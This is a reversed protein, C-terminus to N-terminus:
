NLMRDFIKDWNYDQINIRSEEDKNIKLKNEFFKLLLEAFTEPTIKDVLICKKNSQIIEAMGGVNSIIFPTKSALAELAVMGFSESRSPIIVINSANYIYNLKQHDISGFWIINDTLNNKNLDKEIIKQAESGYDGGVIGLKINPHFKKIIVITNIAIDLGKLFDLRGVFLILKDKIHLNIKERSKEKSIKFFLNSDFGPSSSLIKPPLINYNEILVKKELSSFCIIKDFNKMSKKELEYRTFDMEYKPFHKKKLYELTHPIHYKKNVSKFHHNSFVASTWYNSILIDTNSKIRNFIKDKEIFSKKSDIHLVKSSYKDFDCNGHNRTILNSEFKNSLLYSHLNKVYMNLGGANGLGIKENPCSHISVITVKKKM